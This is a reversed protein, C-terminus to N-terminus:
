CKRTKRKRKKKRIRCSKKEKNEEIRDLIPQSFLESVGTNYNAISGDGPNIYKNVVTKPKTFDKNPLSEHLKDM